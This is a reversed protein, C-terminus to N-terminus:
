LNRLTSTRVKAAEYVDDLNFTKGDEITFLATEPIFAAEGRSEMELEAQTLIIDGQSDVRKVCSPYRGNRDKQPQIFYKQGVKGFVSRLVVVNSKLDGNQVENVKKAM